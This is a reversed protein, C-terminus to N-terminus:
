EDDATEEETPGTQESRLYAGEDLMADLICFAVASATVPVARPGLCPVNRGRMRIAVDEGTDANVTHQERAIGPAPRFAARVVLPMGTTVGDDAGGSNNTEPQPIGGRMYIQDNASSGRMAAFGFGAGFEVGKVGPISFLMSAISAEIGSFAPSGLGGPVGTATCELVCGVSDGSGRADLMERKMDFTLGLGNSQGVQVIETGVCVGTNELLQLCVAGAFLMALARRGSYAGGSNRRVGRRLVALDEFGPRLVGDGVSVPDDRTKMLVALPEGTLRGNELGSVVAPAEADRKEGGLESDGPVPASMFASVAAMDLAAGAPLGDLVAGICPGHAEGTVTLKLKRGFSNM